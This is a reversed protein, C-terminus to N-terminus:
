AADHFILGLTFREGKSLESVGHRMAARHFGRTGKRPRERVPIIVADGQNLPVVMGRSQMRPRQEVLMLEGGDFDRGPQSLLVIVQLPFHIPGYLDQHLCNYDGAGYKLLLPTPRRQGEAHCQAILEDLSDPWRRDIRLLEHWHNAIPALMEYFSERLQQVFDPLPYDFYQYEGRGFNHRAMHIRSRFIGDGSDYLRALRTCEAPTLVNEIRAFGRTNIEAFQSNNEPNLLPM